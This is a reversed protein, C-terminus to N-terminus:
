CSRRTSDPELQFAVQTAVVGCGLEASSGSGHGPPGYLRHRDLNGRSSSSTTTGCATSATSTAAPRSLMWSRAPACRRRRSRPAGAGFTRHKIGGALRRGRRAMRRGFGPCGAGHRRLREGRADGRRRGAHRHQEAAEDVRPAGPALPPRAPPLHRSHRTSAGRGLLQDRAGGRVEASPVGRRARGRVRGLHRQDLDRRRVVRGAM